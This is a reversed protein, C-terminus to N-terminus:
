FFKPKLYNASVLDNEYHPLTNKRHGRIQDGNQPITICKKYIFFIKKSNSLKM